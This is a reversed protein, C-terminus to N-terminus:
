FFTGEFETLGQPIENWGNSPPIISDPVIYGLVIKSKKPNDELFNVLVRDGKKYHFVKNYHGLPSTNQYGQGILTFTYDAKLGTRTGQWTKDIVGVTYKSPKEDWQNDKYRGYLFLAGGIFLIAIVNVIIKKNM